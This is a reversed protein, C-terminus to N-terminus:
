GERLVAAPDLRAAARAPFWAALLGVAMLVVAAATLTAPDRAETRFLLTTVYRAAWVSAAMGIGVGVLVLVGARWMVLRVIGRPEAGLAMRVGIETRRARVANSMVGYLGVAALLLALLGFFTSLLALLREQIMAARVMQDFTRFTFSASPDVRTLADGVQREVSARQGPAIGVVLAASPSPEGEVIPLYVTPMMGERPNRYVADAAVGIVEYTDEGGLVVTQGVPPRDPQLFRAAFRENVIASRTGDLRDEVQFDRGQRMPIGMTHFWGPSVANLWTMSGRDPPDRRPGVGNNWGSGSVPTIRSVAASTVGPVLAAAARLREILHGRAEPTVASQQVDLELVLLSEPTFGLPVRSLSAFTHLFLAAGVVLVLSVALQLTVLAGRFSFRRDGVTGRGAEKLTEGASVRSVSLLPALGAAVACGCALAATFALVRWDFALDLSIAGQWTNLQAVLLGASWRALLLGAGAGLLAVLLSETFLLRAVRPRSAGLALRVSLERRRALARALMLSAINACAVLLVLGVAVIMASLPTGFRERLMSQGTGAPVLTLGADLYRAQMEEPWDPLTATRIAPQLARLAATADAPTRGAPLRGMISVWWMSRQDLGSDTGRLVPEAAFPVIVDFTQGVEPGSFGAPLIGVVTFPKRELTIQRGIVDEAGGFRRQWFRHSIVAVTADAGPRDDGPGLLRGREPVIGLVQFMGGSVYAADVPDRRGGRSLDFSESAWAFAGDFIEPAHRDIERWIPYTWSGNDLLVLRSPDRVPLPRLVLSNFISFLATNAGIGLALTGVAVLTFRPSKRLARLGARLDQGAADLFRVVWVDRADEAALTLNGLARRSAAAAEGPALGERELADQRLARHCEMEERLDAERRSRFLFAELRRFLTGM